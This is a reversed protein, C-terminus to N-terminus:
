LRGVSYTVKAPLWLKLRSRLRMKLQDKGVPGDDDFGVGHSLLLLVVRDADKDSLERLRGEGQVGPEEDCNYARRELCLGYM